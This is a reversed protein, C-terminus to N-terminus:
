LEGTIKSPLTDPARSLLMCMNDHILIVSMRQRLQRVSDSEDRGVVRALQPGLKASTELAVKYWGKFMDM